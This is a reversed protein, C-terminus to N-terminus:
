GIAIMEIEVRAGRPLAAVQVTARAPPTMGEFRAGYVENVTTFDALDTVFITAKVVDAFGVNAAALVAALNKMVQETQARVDGAGVMEGTGPDLPIQGSLFVMEGARIAQSYPGIAGPAGESSIVERRM